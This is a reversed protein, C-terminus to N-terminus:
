QIVFRAFTTSPAAGGSMVIKPCACLPDIQLRSMKSFDSGYVDVVVSGGNGFSTDTTGDRNLRVLGFDNNWQGTVVIKGDPQMVMGRGSAGPGSVSGDVGFTTDVLGNSTFRAIGFSTGVTGGVLIDGGAALEINWVSSSTGAGFDAIALGGSGFSSDLVGTPSYRKLSMNTRVSNGKGVKALGGVLIRGIPDIAVSRGPGSNVVGGTGFSQDLSGDINLRVLQGLTFEGLYGATLIKGDPQIALADAYGADITVHGGNGFSVDPSGDTTFRSVRLVNSSVRRGSVLHGTGAVVIRQEGGIDQLALAHVNGFYTTSGYTLAWSFNVIGGVGFTNDFSGDPNLRILKEGASHGGVVAVIKGDPQIAMGDPSTPISSHIQYIATGNAGFTPDLCGASDPCSQAHADISLLLALCLALRAGITTM